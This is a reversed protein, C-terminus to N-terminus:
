DNFFFASQIAHLTFYVFTFLFSIICFIPGYTSGQIFLIPLIWFCLTIGTSFCNNVCVLVSLLCRLFCLTYSFIKLIMLSSLSIRVFWHCVSSLNRLLLLLLWFVNCCPLSTFTDESLLYTTFYFSWVTTESVYLLSWHTVNYFLLYDSM